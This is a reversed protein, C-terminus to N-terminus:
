RPLVELEALRRIEHRRRRGFLRDRDEAAGLAGNTFGLTAVRKRAGVSGGEPAAVASVTTQPLQPWRKAM